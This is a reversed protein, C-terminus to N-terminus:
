LSFVCCVMMQGTCNLSLAIPPFWINEDGKATLCILLRCWVPMEVYSFKEKMQDSTRINVCSIKMKIIIIIIIIAVM